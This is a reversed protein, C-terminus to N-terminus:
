YNEGGVAKVGSGSFYEKKPQVCVTMSFYNEDEDLTESKEIDFYKIDEGLADSVIKIIAKEKEESM